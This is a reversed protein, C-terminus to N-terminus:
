DAWNGVPCVTANFGRMTGKPHELFLCFETHHSAGRDDRYFICGIVFTTKLNNYVEARTDLDITDGISSVSLFGNPFIVSGASAGAEGFCGKFPPIDQLSWEGERPPNKFVRARAAVGVGLAPSSGVNRIPLLTAFGRDFNTVIVTGRSLDLSDLGLWPRHALRSDRNQQSAIIALLITAVALIGNFIVNFAQTSLPIKM